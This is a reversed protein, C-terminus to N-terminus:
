KVEVIISEAVFSGKNDMGQVVVVYKGPQDSSYFELAAKGDKEISVHPAWFLTSRFDPIRSELQEKTEYLPSYFNRQM